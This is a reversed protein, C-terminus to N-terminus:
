EARNPSPKVHVNRRKMPIVVERGKDMNVEERSRRKVPFTVEKKIKTPIQPMKWTKWVLSTCLAPSAAKRQVRGADDYLISSLVDASSNHNYFNSNQKPYKLNLSLIWISIVIFYKYNISLILFGCNNSILWSNLFVGIVRMLFGCDSERLLNSLKTSIKKQTLPFNM